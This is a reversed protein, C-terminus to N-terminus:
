NLKAIKALDPRSLGTEKLANMFLEAQINTKFTKAYEKFYTGIFWNRTLEKLYQPSAEKGYQIIFKGKEEKLENYLKALEDIIKNKLECKNGNYNRSWLNNHMEKTTDNKNATIAVYNWKSLQKNFAGLHLEGDMIYLLVKGIKENLSAGNVSWKSYTLPRLNNCASTIFVDNGKITISRVIEYSM